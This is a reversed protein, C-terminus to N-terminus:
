GSVGAERSADEQVPKRAVVYGYASHRRLHRVAALEVRIVQGLLRELPRFKRRAFGWIWYLVNFQEGAEVRFGAGRVDAVLEAFRFRSRVPVSEWRPRLTRAVRMLLSDDCTEILVLSGGPRLVRHIEGLVVRHDEAHHLVHSVHVLDVTADRLPLREGAGAVVDGFTSARVLLSLSSDLGVVRGGSALLSMHSGAGCGLDLIRADEPLSDLLDRELPLYSFVREDRGGWTEVADVGHGLEESAAGFAIPHGARADPAM